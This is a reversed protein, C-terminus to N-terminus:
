ADPINRQALIRAIFAACIAVGQLAAFQSDTLPFTMGFFPLLGEVATLVGAIFLLRISWAYRLVDRWDTVFMPWGKM